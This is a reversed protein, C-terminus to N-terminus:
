NDSQKSSHFVNRFTARGFRVLFIVTAAATIIAVTTGVVKAVKLGKSQDLSEDQLTSLEIPSKPSPRMLNIEMVKVLTIM